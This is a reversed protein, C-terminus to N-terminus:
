RIRMHPHHKAHCDYCLVEFNDSFNNWKNHDKHHVHLNRMDSSKDCGCDQCIYNVKKREHKSIEEWNRPYQNKAITLFDYKPANVRNRYYEFFDFYKKLSFPDLLESDIETDKKADRLCNSCVGLEMNKQSEINWMKSAIFNVDLMWTQTYAWVYRSDFSNNAMKEKITSCNYFHIKPDSYNGKFPIVDRIYVVIKEWEANTITNDVTSIRISSADIPIIEPERADWEVAKYNILDAWIKIRHDSLGSNHFDPLQM